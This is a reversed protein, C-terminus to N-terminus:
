QARLQAVLPSDMAPGDSDALKSPPLATRPDVPNDGDRIEFHV